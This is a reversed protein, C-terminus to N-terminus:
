CECACVCNTFTRVLRVTNGDPKDIYYNTPTAVNGCNGNVTTASTIENSKAGFRDHLWGYQATWMNGGNSVYMDWSGDTRLFGLSDGNGHVWRNNVLVRDGELRTPM